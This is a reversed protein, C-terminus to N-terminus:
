EEKLLSHAPHEPPLLEFIERARELIDLIVALEMALVPRRPHNDCNRPSTVIGLTRLKRLLTCITAHPLNTGRELAIPTTEYQPCSAFFKCVMALQPTVRTRYKKYFASALEGRRSAQLKMAATSALYRSLAPQRKVNMGLGLVRRSATSPAQPLPPAPHMGLLYLTYESLQTSM